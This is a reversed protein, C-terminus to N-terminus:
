FFGIFFYTLSFIYSFHKELIIKGWKQAFGLRALFKKTVDRMLLSLRSGRVLSAWHLRKEDFDWIEPNRFVIQVPLNQSMKPIKPQM